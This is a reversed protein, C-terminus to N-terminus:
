NGRYWYSHLCACLSRFYSKALRAIQVQISFWIPKLLKLLVYKPYHKFFQLSESRAGLPQSTGLRRGRPSLLDMKTKNLRLILFFFPMISKSIWTTPQWLQNLQHTCQEYLLVCTTYEFSLKKKLNVTLKNKTHTERAKEGERLSVRTGPRACVCM